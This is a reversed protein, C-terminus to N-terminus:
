PSPVAGVGLEGLRLVPQSLREPDGPGAPARGTLTDAVAAAGRVEAAAGMVVAGVDARLVVDPDLLGVLTQVGGGALDLIQAIEDFPVAFMDHLVFALREAPTLTDLVVLPALGVGVARDLRLWAEQVADDAESASDPM